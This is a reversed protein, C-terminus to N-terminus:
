HITERSPTSRAESEEAFLSEIFAAIRRAQPSTLPPLQNLDVDYYDSDHRKMWFAEILQCLTTYRKAQKDTREASEVEVRM